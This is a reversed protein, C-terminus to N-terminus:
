LAALIEDLEPDNLGLAKLEANTNRVYDDCRGAQGVGQRVLQLIEKRTLGGLFQEHAENAVYTVAEIERQGDHLTVTVAREFYVGTVLERGRLYALTEPWHVNRVQFARGDCYGGSRLAMVAGPVEDTGRYIHSRVCLSRHYGDLRAGCSHLFKFGPRWMLSGYGFVWHSSANAV